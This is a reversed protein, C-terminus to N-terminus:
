VAGLWSWDVFYDIIVMYTIMNTQQSQASVHFDKRHNEYEQYLVSQYMHQVKWKWFSKSETVGLSEHFYSVGM